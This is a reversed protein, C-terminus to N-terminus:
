SGYSDDHTEIARGSPDAKGEWAKEWRLATPSSCAISKEAPVSTAASPQPFLSEFMQRYLYGEKTLPPNDPFRYARAAFLDDSVQDEAYDRLADIWGYGVGDSFQEKQRWLVSKPLYPQEPTDFAARLIHKEMKGNAVDPMKHVPDLRMAVELFGKDLFPVRAEVGWAAMAKNARQCDYNHLAFVKRVTEAHLEDANPARHFYLYGGFVEDSGEGSLVMKVGMAKIKRAMLYMPTSARVSTIDYTEVHHIVDRLADLGEQITFTFNHHVTGLHEAVQQAAALDPSGELGICFSHLRPWWAASREGDEVRRASHRAAIAAVLSSDLGGSLLVGYPVDCMLRKVVAAELAGRLEEHALESTCVERSQWAPDYYRVLKGDAYYHGPPFQEFRKCVTALAKLESAFWTSGDEGWGWYLPVVGIPDRAALVRGTKEDSLVFAFVGDLESVLDAGKEEFLHVIVECDSGTAFQHKCKLGGRLTTHNYIEGNVALAISGTEDFLPQAGAAPSIIGLREHALGRIRERGKDDTRRQMALGSWDPGRHRVTKALEILRGRLASEEEISDIVVVIGCM